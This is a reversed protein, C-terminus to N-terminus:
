ANLNSRAWALIFEYRQENAMRPFPGGEDNEFEIERIMASAIGFVEALRKDDYPSIGTMNIGRARGVSGLACVLGDRELDNAILKKTPLGELSAILERLFAQGRKGRIASKVAGRWRIVEWPDNEYSYDSRSM